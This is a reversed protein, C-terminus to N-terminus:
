NALERYYAAAQLCFRILNSLVKDLQTKFIKLPHFRLFDLFVNTRPNHPRDFVEQEGKFLVNGKALNRLIFDEADRLQNVGNRKSINLPCGGPSVSFM